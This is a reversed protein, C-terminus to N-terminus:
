SRRRRRAAGPRARDREGPKVDRHVVGREHAHALASALASGIELVLREISRTTRTSGHSRPGTSSSRSSTTRAPRTGWATSRSSRRIRSGRRRAARACSGRASRCIAPRSRFASSRSADRRRARRARDLRQRSRGLRATELLRYRGLVLQDQLSRPREVRARGCRAPVDERERTGRWACREQVRLSSPAFSAPRARGPPRGAVDM